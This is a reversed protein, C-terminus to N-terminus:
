GDETRRRTPGPQWSDIESSQRRWSRLPWRRRSGIPPGQLSGRPRRAAAGPAAHGAGATSSEHSEQTRFAPADAGKGTTSASRINSVSRSRRTVPTSGARTLCVTMTRNCAGKVMRAHVACGVRGLAAQEDRGVIRTLISYFAMQVANVIPLILVDKRDIHKKLATEVGSSIQVGTNAHVFDGSNVEHPKIPYVVKGNVMPPQSNPDPWTTVGNKVVGEDFGQDLNGDEDLMEILDPTSGSSKDARWRLFSFNGPSNAQDNIYVRRQTLGGPYNPDTYTKYYPLDAQNQPPLFGSTDLSSSQVGLPYVGEM